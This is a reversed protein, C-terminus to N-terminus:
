GSDPTTRVCSHCTFTNWLHMFPWICFNMQIEIEVSHVMEQYPGHQGVDRQTPRTSASIGPPWPIHGGSMRVIDGYPAWSRILPKSPVFINKHTPKLRWSIGIGMMLFFKERSCQLEWSAKTILAEKKKPKMSTLNNIPLTENICAWLEWWTRHPEDDQVKRLIFLWWEDRYKWTWSM